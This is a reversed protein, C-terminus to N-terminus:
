HCDKPFFINKFNTIAQWYKFLPFVKPFTEKPIKFCIHKLPIGQKLSDIHLTERVRFHEFVKQKEGWWGPAMKYVYYWMGSITTNALM